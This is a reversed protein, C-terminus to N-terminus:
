AGATTLVSYVAQAVSPALEAESGTFTLAFGSRDGQATGTGATGATLDLGRSKGLYWYVGNSDKVVAILTNQALLLIENRTATQLKNLVVM